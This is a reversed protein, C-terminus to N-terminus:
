LVCAQWKERCEALEDQGNGRDRFTKLCSETTYNNNKIWDLGILWVTVRCLELADYTYFSTVNEYLVCVNYFMVLKFCVDTYKSCSILTIEINCNM